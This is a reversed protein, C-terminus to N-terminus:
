ILLKEGEVMVDAGPLQTVHVNLEPFKSKSGTAPLMFVTLPVSDSM